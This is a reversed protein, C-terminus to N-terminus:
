PLMKPCEELAHIDIIDEDCVDEAVDDLLQVDRANM